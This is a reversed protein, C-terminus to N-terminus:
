PVVLGTFVLISAGILGAVALTYVVFQREETNVVEAAAFLFPVASLAYRELSDLNRSSLAVFLVSAAYLTYSLPWRRALVVLLAIFVIASVVHVGASLHDGRFLEHTNHALARVPDVWGGRRSADEQVRVPYLFERSRRTAWVLYGFAGIAPACAAVFAAVKRQRWAEIAVPIVLLAGIPRTLGALLRGRGRDVM